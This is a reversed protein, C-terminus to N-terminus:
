FHYFGSILGRLEFDERDSIPFGISFGIWWDSTERPRLKIGPSLNVITEGSEEGSLVTELDLEIMGQIRPSLWYLASLSWELETEVEGAEGDGSKAVRGDGDDDDGDGDDNGDGGEDGETQNTPIGFEVFSVLEFRGRKWGFAFFPAIELENNSGIGKGDDGTPLGLELGYTLLLGREEFAYNAVKVGLGVTDLSSVSPEDDEDLFTFPVDIELSVSRNFAYEGEFRLTTLRGDDEDFSFADLRVKTDPSPSETIMPHSFHLDETKGHTHGTAHDDHHDHAPEASKPDNEHAATAPARMLLVTTVALM